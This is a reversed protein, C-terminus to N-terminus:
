YTYIKLLYFNEAFSFENVSVMIVDQFNIIAELNILYGDYLKENLEPGYIIWANCGNLTVWNDKLKHTEENTL